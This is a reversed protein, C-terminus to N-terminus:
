KDFQKKLWMNMELMEEYEKNLMKGFDVTKGFDTLMDFDVKSYDINSKPDEKEEECTCNNCKNCGSSSEEKVDEKNDREINALCRGVNRLDKELRSVSEYLEAYTELLSNFDKENIYM